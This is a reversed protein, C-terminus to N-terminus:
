SGCWFNIGINYLRKIAKSGFRNDAKFKMNLSKEEKLILFYGATKFKM